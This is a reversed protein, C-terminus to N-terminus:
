VNISLQFELTGYYYNIFKILYSLFIFIFPIITNNNIKNRIIRKYPKCNKNSINM